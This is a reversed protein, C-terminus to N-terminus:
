RRRRWPRRRRSRLNVRAPRGGAALTAEASVRVDAVAAVAAVAAEAVGLRPTAGPAVPPAPPSPPLVNIAAIAAVASDALPTTSLLLPFPIADAAGAAFTTETADKHRRCQTTGAAPGEATSADPLYASPDPVPVNVPPLPPKPPLPPNRPLPLVPPAPPLAVVLPLLGATDLPPLPPSPPTASTGRHRRCPRGQRCRCWRRRCWLRAPSGAPPVPPM